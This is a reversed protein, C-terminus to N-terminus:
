QKVIRVTTKQKGDDAIVLYMGPSFSTIDMETKDASIIKRFLIKGTMDVVAVNYAAEKEFNLTFKGDNPNPWAKAKTAQWDDASTLTTVTVTCTATKGGDATRVTIVATGAVKGTVVGTNSVSAINANNSSWTVSKNTANTPAVSATLTETKGIALTTATKNLTVGTVAIVATSVTVVCSATKGGDATKVTVTATGAAKATVVGATSVTAINTNSSTWTVSKNTANNPAVTATLTETQNVALTTAAKNLSVGTVAVTAPTSGSIKVFVPSATLSLASGTLSTEKNDWSYCTMSKVSLSAPFNYTATVNEANGSSKAWLVYIYNKDKESYFAGGDVGAPLSLADSASKDYRREKLLTSTTRWSLACSNATVAYPKGTVNQYFGMVQYPDTAKDYTTEEAVSYVYLGRIDSKQCAVAAKIMFNRQAEDSGIYGGLPKRPINCETIIWEKAPYTTGYLYKKLIDEYGKKSAVIAAAAADSNRTSTTLNYMPYLHFSLCDFWAGGKQPYDATVKGGDPNDTNRLVAELFNPYGLGGTCVFANPDLTKVVEYTIRLMRVYRQVSAGFFSLDCPSPDTTNWKQTASWNGTFDPENWVEWFKVYAKYTNVVNYVYNAYYNNSNIKGNVWIPEYLNAFTQSKSGSCYSANDKHADSPGNLFITHNKGGLSQYFKFANSRIGYGWQTVFYDYMAPRLSNVGAGAIGKAPNGILIEAIQEDTWGDFWGMNSGYLFFDNYTTKQTNANYSVQAEAFQTWASMLMVSIGLLIRM